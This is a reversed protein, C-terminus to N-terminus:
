SQLSPSVNIRLNLMPSAEWIFANSGFLFWLLSWFSFKLGLRFHNFAKNIYKVDWVQLQPGNHTSYHLLEPNIEVVRNRESHM